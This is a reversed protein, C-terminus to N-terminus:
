LLQLVSHLRETTHLSTLHANSPLSIAPVGFAVHELSREYPGLMHLSVKRCARSAQVAPMQRDRLVASVEILTPCELGGRLMSQCTHEHDNFCGSSGVASQTIVISATLVPQGNDAGERPMGTSQALHPM